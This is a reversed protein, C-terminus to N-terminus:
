SILKNVFFYLLVLFCQYHACQVILITACKVDVIIFNFNGYMFCIVISLKIATKLMSEDIDISLSICKTLKLLCNQESIIYLFFISGIWLVTFAIFVFYQPHIKLLFSLYECKSLEKKDFYQGAIIHNLVGYIM